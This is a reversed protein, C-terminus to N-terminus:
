FLAFSVLCPLYYINKRYGAPGFGFFSCLFIVVYIFTFLGLVSGSVCDFVFGLVFALISGRILDLRFGAYIVVILSLEFVLRGPFFNYRYYNIAINSIINIFITTSFLLANNNLKNEESVLILIEELKSFILSRRAVNIKLFLGDDQRDVHSVQGILLGKPFVGGMGSSVL